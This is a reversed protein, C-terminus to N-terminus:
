SLSSSRAQEPTPFEYCTRAWRAIAAIHNSSIDGHGPWCLHIVPKRRRGLYALAADRNSM